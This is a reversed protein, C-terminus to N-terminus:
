RLTELYAIVARTEASDLPLAPMRAGEKIGQANHIWRALNTPTNDIAGAGITPRSAFHTLEPGYRGLAPTGGVAHCAGCSRIFITQGAQTEANSPPLAAARRQQAWSNFEAPSQATVSLAMAAHQLGCYEGCMGRSVGPEEAELWMENDQGPIVDTKGAIQPLWFSHIVDASHLRVRVPVGVPLHIENATTFGLNPNSADSYTIEWWWQHGTVDMTLSPTTPPHAAATLTLMTGVFVAVLVVITAGTGIYIWNLGTAIQNRDVVANRSDDGRKRMVAVILAICVFLVVAGAIVTLWVGLTAERHGANGTADLYSTTGNCAAILVVLLVLPARVLRRAGLETCM